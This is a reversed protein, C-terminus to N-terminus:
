KVYILETVAFAQDMVHYCTYRQGSLHFQVVMPLCTHLQMTGTIESHNM